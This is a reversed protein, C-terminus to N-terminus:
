KAGSAKACAPEDHLDCAKRYFATAAAPEAKKILDGSICCSEAHGASCARKFSTRALPMLSVHEESEQQYHVTIDDTSGAVADARWGGAYHM